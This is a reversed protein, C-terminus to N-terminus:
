EMCVFCFDRDCKWGDEGCRRKTGGPTQLISGERVENGDPRRAVRVVSRALQHGKRHTRRHSANGAKDSGTSRPTRPPKSTRHSSSSHSLSPFLSANKKTTKSSASSRPTTPLEPFPRHVLIRHHGSPTYDSHNFSLEDEDDDSESILSLVSNSFSPTSKEVQKARPRSPTTPHIIMQPEAPPVQEPSAPALHQDEPLDSQGTSPDPDSSAGAHAEAVPQREAEQNVHLSDQRGVHMDSDANTPSDQEFSTGSRILQNQSTAASETASDSTSSLRVSRLRQQEPETINEETDSTMVQLEKSTRTNLAVDMALPAAKTEQEANSDGIGRKKPRGRPRKQTQDRQKPLSQAAEDPALTVNKRDVATNNGTCQSIDLGQLPPSPLNSPESHNSQLKKKRSRRPLLTEEDSFAFSPDVVNREFKVGAKPEDAKHSQGLKTTPSMNQGQHELTLSPQCKDTSVEKPLDEHTVFGIDNANQDSIMGEAVIHPSEVKRGEIHVYLTQGAPKSFGQNTIDLFSELDSEEWPSQDAQDGPTTQLTEEFNPRVKPKRGRKKPPERNEVHLTTTSLRLNSEARHHIHNEQNLPSPKGRAKSLRSRRISPPTDPMSAIIDQILDKLHNDHPSSDVAPFTRHILPSVRTNQPEREKEREPVNVTVAQLDDEIDAEPSNPVNLSGKLVTRTVVPTAVGYKQANSVSMSDLFASPPLEPARWAPDTTRPSEHLFPPFSQDQIPFHSQAPLFSDLLPLGRSASGTPWSLESIRWPDRPSGMALDPRNENSGSPLAQDHGQAEAERPAEEDEDEDGNRDQRGDTDGAEIGDEDEEEDDDVIWDKMSRMSSLHGNDVVVEGTELDIEDGIGTFDKEYKAFIDEFRSKLQFAAEARGKALLFSPDRRQNLEEPELFLEDEDTDTLAGGTKRRKTAPEM